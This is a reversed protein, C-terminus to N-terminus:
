QKQDEEHKEEITKIILSITTPLLGRRLLFEKIGELYKEFRLNTKKGKQPLLNSKWELLAREALADIIFEVDEEKSIEKRILDTVMKTKPNGYFLSLLTFREVLDMPVYAGIFQYNKEGKKESPISFPNKM